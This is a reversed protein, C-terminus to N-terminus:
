APLGASGRWLTVLTSRPIGFSRGVSAKTAGADLAAIVAALKEADIAV